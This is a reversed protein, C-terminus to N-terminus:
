PNNYCGPEYWYLTFGPLGQQKSVRGSSGLCFYAGRGPLWAMISYHTSSAIGPGPAVGTYFANTSNNSLRVIETCLERARTGHVSGSFSDSCNAATNDWSAMLQVYSQHDLFNLEMLKGFQQVTQMIKADKAAYRGQNLSALATAALMSIIAVVVLLEILTFGGM